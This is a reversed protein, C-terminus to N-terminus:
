EYRLVAIPDVRTARRSPLYCALMAACALVVAAMGFIIPDTAQVGFLLTAMLRTLGYSALVGLVLGVLTLQMGQGVVLRLVDGRKAGLALTLVAIATFGPNKRLMRLAFKIAQRLAQV